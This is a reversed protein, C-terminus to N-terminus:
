GACGARSQSTHTHTHTHTFPLLILIPASTIGPPASVSASFSKCTALDFRSNPCARQLEAVNRGQLDMAFYFHGEFWGDGDKLVHVIRDYPKLKSLIQALGWAPGRDPVGSQVRLYEEETTGELTSQKCYKAPLISNSGGPGKTSAALTEQQQHQDARLAQAHCLPPHLHTMPILDWDLHLEAREHQGASLARSPMAAMAAFAGKRSASGTDAVPICAHWLM